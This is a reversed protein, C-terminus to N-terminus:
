SIKVKKIGNKICDELEEVLTGMREFRCKQSKQIHDDVDSFGEV